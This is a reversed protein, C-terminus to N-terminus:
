QPLTCVSPSANADARVQRQTVAQMTNPHLINGDPDKFWVPTTEGSQHVDVDLTLGDADPNHRFRM